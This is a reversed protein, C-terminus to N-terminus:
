TFVVAVSNFLCLQFGVLVGVIWRLVFLDCCGGWGVILGSVDFGFLCFVM